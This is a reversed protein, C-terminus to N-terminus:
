CSPVSSMTVIVRRLLAAVSICSSASASASALLLSSEIIKEVVFVRCVWSPIAGFSLCCLIFHSSVWQSVVLSDDGVGVMGMLVVLVLEVIFIEMRVLLVMNYVRLLPSRLV